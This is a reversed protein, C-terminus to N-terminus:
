SAFYYWHFSEIYNSILCPQQESKIGIEKELNLYMGKPLVYYTQNYTLMFGHLKDYNDTGCDGADFGCEIM